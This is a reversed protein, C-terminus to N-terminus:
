TNREEKRSKNWQLGDSRKQNQLFMQLKKNLPYDRRFWQEFNRMKRYKETYRRFGGGVHFITSIEGSKM